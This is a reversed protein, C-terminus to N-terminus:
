GIRIIKTPTQSVDVMNGNKDKVFTGGNNRINTEKRVQGRKDAILGRMRIM